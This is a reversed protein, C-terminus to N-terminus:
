FSGRAFLVAPVTKALILLDFSVSKHKAYAVDLAVRRRYTTNNRGSVQWLGTIGPKVAAYDSFFRRYRTVEDEVIPRPGVISMEGRLVNFLQPLEDISTARLFSGLKTIRPDRRLKQDRTWEALAVPDTELLERLLQASNVRMSRFKYCNFYRGHRGVRRHAFVVPGRDLLVIALAVLSLIPLLILLLAVAVTLDLARGLTDNTGTHASPDRSERGRRARMELRYQRTQM